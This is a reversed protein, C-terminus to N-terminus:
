DEWRDGIGKSASVGIFYCKMGALQYGQRTRTSQLAKTMETKSGEEEIRGTDMNVLKYIKSKM